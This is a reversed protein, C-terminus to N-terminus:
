WPTGGMRELYDSAHVKELLTLLEDWRRPNQRLTDFVEQEVFELGKARLELYADRGIRKYHLYHSLEHWVEYKTADRPLYLEGAEASFGARKGVPLNPDDLKLKIGRRDLFKELKGIRSSGYLDGGRRGLQQSIFDIAGM